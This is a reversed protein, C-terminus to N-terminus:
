ESGDFEPRHAMYLETLADRPSLESGMADRVETAYQRVTRPSLPTGDAELRNQLRAGAAKYSLRHCGVLVAVEWQRSTMRGLVDDWREPEPFDKMM